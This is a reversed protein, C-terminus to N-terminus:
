LLNIIDFLYVIFIYNIFLRVISPQSELGCRALEM